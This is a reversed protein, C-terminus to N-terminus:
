EYHLEGQKCKHLKEYTCLEYWKELVVGKKTRVIITVDLDEGDTPYIVNDEDMCEFDDYREEHIAQRAEKINDSKVSMRSTHVVIQDVFMTYWPM